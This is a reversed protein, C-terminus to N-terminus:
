SSESLKLLSVITKITAPVQRSTKPKGTPHIISKEKCLTNVVQSGKPGKFQQSKVASGFLAASTGFAAKIIDSINTINPM